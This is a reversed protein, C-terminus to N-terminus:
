RLSHSSVSGAGSNILMDAIIRFRELDDETLTCDAIRFVVLKLPTTPQGEATDQYPSGDKNWIPLYTGTLPHCDWMQRRSNASVGQLLLRETLRINAASVANHLMTVPHNKVVDDAPFHKFRLFNSSAVCSVCRAKNGHKNRQSSSIPNTKSNCSFCTSLDESLCSEIDHPSKLIAGCYECM